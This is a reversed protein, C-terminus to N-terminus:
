HARKGRSHAEVTVSVPAQPSQVRLEVSSDKPNTLGLSLTTQQLRHQHDGEDDCRATCMHRGATAISDVHATMGAPMGSVSRYFIPQTNAYLNGASDYVAARM